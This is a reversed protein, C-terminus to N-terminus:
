LGVLDQAERDYRAERANKEELGVLRNYRPLPMVRGAVAAFARDRALAAMVDDVAQAAAFLAASPFIVASAGADALAALDFDTRGSAHSANALHPGPVDRCLRRFDELSDGGQVFVMDAGAERYLRARELAGDIGAVAFADTRAVFLFAPDDRADLAAKIKAVMQEAPIVNKGPLYGCRKPFVQDEVLLGAVGAREMARIMRAVNNPGGFGTDADAFVPIGVAQAIRGYHDVYDHMTMQGVDPEGLLSGAAAFGGAMAAAFGHAEIIRASLADYAGPILLLDPAAILARLRAGSSAHGANV